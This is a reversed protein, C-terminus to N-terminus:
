GGVIISLLILHSSRVPDDMQDPFVLEDESAGLVNANLLEDGSPQIVVGILDPVKEGLSRVADRYTANEKLRLPVQRSRAIARAVGTLEIEVDM